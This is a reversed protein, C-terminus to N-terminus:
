RVSMDNEFWERRTYDSYVSNEERQAVVCQRMFLTVLFPRHRRNTSEYQLYGLHSPQSVPFFSRWSVELGDVGARAPCAFPSLDGNEILEAGDTAVIPFVSNPQQILGASGLLGPTRSALRSEATGLKEGGQFAEPKGTVLHAGLFELCGNRDPQRVILRAILGERLFSQVTGPKGSVGNKLPTVFLCVLYEGSARSRATRITRSCGPACSDCHAAMLEITTSPAGFGRM